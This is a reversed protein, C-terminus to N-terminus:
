STLGRAVALRHFGLEPHTDEDNVLPATGGARVKNMFTVIQRRQEGTLQAGDPLELRRLAKVQRAWAVWDERSTTM